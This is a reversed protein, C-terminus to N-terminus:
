SGEGPHLDSIPSEKAPKDPDTRSVSILILNLDRVRTLLGHLAAQDAVPGSILTCALGNEGNKINTLTMGEFWPEWLRDLHGQVKIEYYAQSPQVTPKQTSTKRSKADTKM